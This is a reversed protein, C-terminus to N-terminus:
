AAACAAPSAAPGASSLGPGPPSLWVETRSGARQLEALRTADGRDVGAAVVEDVEADTRLDLAETCALGAAARVARARGDLEARDAADLPDRSGILRAGAPPTAPVTGDVTVVTLTAVPAFDDIRERPELATMSPSMRVDFGRRRLDAVLGTGVLAFGPDHAYLRYTRGAELQARVQGSLAAVTRGDAAAPGEATAAAVGALAAAGFALAATGATVARRARESRLAAAVAWGMAVWGLAAAAWAWMAMYPLLPAPTRATAVLSAIVLAVAYAVLGAPERRGRRWAWSGAAVAVAVVALAGLALLPRADHGGVGVVSPEAGMWPAPVGFHRGMQDLVVDGAVLDDRGHRAYGILQRVNGRATTAEQWLPAWWCALGVVAAAAVARRGLRRGGRRRTLYAVGCWVAAASVVPLYSLHSQVCWSGAVVAGGLLWRDGRSAGWACVLYALLALVGVYPNWPDVLLDGMALGILGAAAAVPAALLAGAVRRAAVVAGAAAAAHVLGVTAAVGPPGFLRYGPASVWFLLPGPHHWGYRSWPGILPTHRTGVDAIRLVEVAQDTTPVWGQVLVSLGAALGPVAVALPAWRLWVDPPRPRAAPAAEDAAGPGWSDDDGDVDVAVVHRSAGRIAM